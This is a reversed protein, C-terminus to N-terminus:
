DNACVLRTEMRSVGYGEDLAVEHAVCRRGSAETVQAAQAEGGSAEPTGSYASFLAALGMLLGFISSMRIM